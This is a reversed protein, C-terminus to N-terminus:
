KNKRKPFDPFPTEKVRRKPTLVKELSQKKTPM